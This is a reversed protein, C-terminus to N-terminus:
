NHAQVWILSKFVLKYLIFRIEYCLDNYISFCAWQNPEQKRGLALEFPGVAWFLFRNRHVRKRLWNVLEFWLAHPGNILWFIWILHVFPFPILTQGLVHTDKLFCNTYNQGITWGLTLQLMLFSLLLLNLTLIPGNGQGPQNTFCHM